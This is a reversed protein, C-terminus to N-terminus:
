GSKPWTHQICYYRGNKKSITDFVYIKSDSEPVLHIQGNDAGQGEILGWARMEILQRGRPRDGEPQRDLIKHETIGDTVGLGATEINM